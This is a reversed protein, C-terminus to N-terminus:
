VRDCYCFCPLQTLLEPSQQAVVYAERAFPRVTAPNLTAALTGVSEASEFFPPLCSENHTESSHAHSEHSDTRAHTREPTAPYVTEFTQSPTEQKWPRTFAFVGIALIVAILALLGLIPSGKDEPKTQQPEPKNKKPM